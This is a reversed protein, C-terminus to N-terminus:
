NPNTEQPNTTLLAEPGRTLADRLTQQHLNDPGDPGPQPSRPPRPTIGNTGKNRGSAYRYMTKILETNQGRKKSEYDSKIKSAALLQNVTIIKGKEKLQAIGEAIVADVAMEFDQKPNILDHDLALETDKAIKAKLREIHGTVITPTTIPNPSVHKKCHNYISALTFGLEKAIHGVREDGEDQRYYAAYIRARLKPNGRSAKCVSCNVKYRMPM